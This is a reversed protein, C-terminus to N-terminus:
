FIDSGNYNNTRDGDNCKDLNEFFKLSEDIGKMKLIEKLDTYNNVGFKGIIRKIKTILGQKHWVRYKRHLDLGYESNDVDIFFERIAPDKFTSYGQPNDIYKFIVNVDRDILFYWAAKYTTIEFNVLIESIRRNLTMHSKIDYKKSFKRLFDKQSRTIKIDILFEKINKIEKRTKQHMNNLNRLMAESPSQWLKNSTKSIGEIRKERIENNKWLKKQIESQKNRREENNWAQLQAKSVKERREEKKWARLQAKSLQKQYKPNSWVKKVGNSVKRKAIPSLRGGTRGGTTLNYGKTPNMSNYVNVVYYREKNDLESKSFAIDILKLDWVDDPYKAIANLIYRAQMKRIPYRRRKNRLTIGHSFIEGWEEEITRMTQGIYVKKNKSARNTAVYIFGYLNNIKELFENENFIIWQTSFIDKAIRHIIPPIEKLQIITLYNFLHTCNKLYLFIDKILLIFSTNDECIYSFSKSIREKNQDIFNRIEASIQKKRFNWEKISIFVDCDFDDTM